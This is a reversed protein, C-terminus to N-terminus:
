GNIGKIVSSSHCSSCSLPSRSQIITAEHGFAPLGFLSKSLSAMTEKSTIVSILFVRFAFFIDGFSANFNYTFCSPVVDNCDKQGMMFFSDLRLSTEKTDSGGAMLAAVKRMRVM